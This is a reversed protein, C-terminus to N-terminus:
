SHICDSGADYSASCIDGPVALFWVMCFTMRLGFFLCELLDDVGDTGNM